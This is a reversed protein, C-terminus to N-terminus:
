SGWAATADPRGTNSAWAQITPTSRGPSSRPFPRTDGTIGCRLTAESTITEAWAMRARKSTLWKTQKLFPYVWTPPAFATRPLNDARLPPIRADYSKTMAVQPAGSAFWKRMGLVTQELDGRQEATWQPLAVKNVPTPPAYVNTSSAPSKQWTIAAAIKPNGKILLDVTSPM